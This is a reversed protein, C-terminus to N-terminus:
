EGERPKPPLVGLIQDIESLSLQADSQNAAVILNATLEVEALLEDDQLRVDFPDVSWTGERTGKSPSVGTRGPDPSGSVVIHVGHHGIFRM